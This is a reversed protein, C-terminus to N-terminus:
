QSSTANFAGAMFPDVPEGTAATKSLSGLARQVDDWCWRACGSSLKVPRPLVGRRVMEHVTTESVDLEHALTSCAMFAPRREAM